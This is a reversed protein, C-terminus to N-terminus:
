ATHKHAALVLRKYQSYLTQSLQMIKSIHAFLRSMSADADCNQTGIAHQLTV